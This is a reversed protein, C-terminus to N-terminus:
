IAEAFWVKLKKVRGGCPACVKVEYKAGYDDLAKKREESYPIEKYASLLAEMFVEDDIYESYKKKPYLILSEHKVSNQVKHPLYLRVPIDFPDILKYYTM